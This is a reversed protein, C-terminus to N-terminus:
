YWPIFHHGWEHSSERRIDILSFTVGNMAWKTALYIEEPLYITLREAGKLCEREKNLVALDLIDFGDIHKVKAKTLHVSHRILEFFDSLNITYLKIRKLNKHQHALVHMNSLDFHFSVKLEMLDMWQPLAVNEDNEYNYNLCLSKLSKLPIMENLTQQNFSKLHFHLRKYVGHEHLRQLLDYITAEVRKDGDEEDVEITLDDLEISSEQFIHRNAWLTQVNTAFSRVQPNIEFFTKLENIIGVDKTQTWHLHELVPYRWLLWDNEYRKLVKRRGDFDEVYLRRLNVCLKPFQEYFNRNVICGEMTVSEISKWKDCLNKIEAGTLDVHYFRFRNFKQKYNNAVYRTVKKLSWTVRRSTSFLVNRNFKNFGIMRYSCGPYEIDKYDVYSETVYNLQFYEGAIQQLSKCTQGVSHVDELSLYDFINNLCHVNLVCIAPKTGSTTTQNKNNEDCNKDESENLQDNQNLDDLKNENNIECM